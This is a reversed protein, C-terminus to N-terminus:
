STAGVKLVSLCPTLIAIVEATIIDISPSDILISLRFMFIFSRTACLAWIFLSNKLDIISINNEKTYSEAPSFFSLSYRNVGV